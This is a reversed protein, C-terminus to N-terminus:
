QRGSDKQPPLHQAKYLYGLALLSLLVGIITLFATGTFRYLWIGGIGGLLFAVLTSGHLLLRQLYVPAYEPSERRRLIDLLMAMEIGIDTSTGSVHTTRVRANSIRTVVANQLGMLFSLSLIMLAGSSFQPFRTEAWGLLALLLGELLINVAYVSRIGHRRGHNILLTSFTSGIIFLCVIELFFFAVPLESRALRDSLSSVNGTMNASFFGVAEFAATNLAGAVLALTAALRSDTVFTRAEDQCILM